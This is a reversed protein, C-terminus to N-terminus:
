KFLSSLTETYKSYCFNKEATIRANYQMKLLEEQSLNLAYELGSCIARPSYDEIVLCNEKDVVYDSLDSSLNLFVPTATALSEVFKTPFGAKAYRLKSERFLLTFHARSLKNLVEKRSIRGLVNMSGEIRKLNCSVIKNLQESTIGIINLEIKRLEIDSLLLMGSIFIDLKDKRAPSGAYVIVLKDTPSTKKFSINQIDLMVPIRAVTIGKERYYRELYKSIAIVKFHKDVVFRNILNKEHFAVSFPGFQSISYWEVSDHYLNINHKIGYHKLYSFAHLPASYILFNDWTIDLTNLLEKVSQKYNRFRNKLSVYSIDDFDYIKYKNYDNMLVILVDHGLLTLLKAMSTVRVAGADSSPGTSTTFIITKM